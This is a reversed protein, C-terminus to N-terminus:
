VDTNTGKLNVRVSWVEEWTSFAPWAEPIRWGIERLVWVNWLRWSGDKERVSQLLRLQGELYQASRLTVRGTGGVGGGGLVGAQREM